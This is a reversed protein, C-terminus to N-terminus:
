VVEFELKNKGDDVEKRLLKAKLLDFNHFSEWEKKDEFKIVWMNWCCNVFLMKWPKWTIMVDYISGEQLSSFDEKWVKKLYDNMSMVKLVEFDKKRKDKHPILLEISEKDKNTDKEEIDKYFDHIKTIIKDDRVWFTEIIEKPSIYRWESVFIKWRVNIWVSFLKEPVWKYNFVYVSGNKFVKVLWVKKYTAVEAGNPINDWIDLIFDWYRNEVLQWEKELEDFKLLAKQTLDKRQRMLYPNVKDTKLSSTSTPDSYERFYQFIVAPPFSRYMWLLTNHTKDPYVLSTAQHGFSDVVNMFDTIRDLQNEFNKRIFGLKKLLQALIYFSSPPGSPHHDIVLTPHKIMLGQLKKEDDIKEVWDAMWTDIHVYWKHREWHNAFSLSENITKSWNWKLFDLLYLCMEADKDSTWKLVWLKDFSWHVIVNNYVRPLVNNLHKYLRERAKWESSKYRNRYKKIRTCMWKDLEREWKPTDSLHFDKNVIDICDKYSCFWDVWHLLSLVVDNVLQDHTPLIKPVGLQHQQLEVSM